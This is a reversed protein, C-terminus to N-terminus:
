EVISTIAVTARVAMIGRAHPGAPSHFFSKPQLQLLHAQHSALCSRRPNAKAEAELAFANMDVAIERGM